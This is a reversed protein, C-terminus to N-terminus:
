IEKRLAATLAKTNVAGSANLTEFARKRFPRKQAESLNFYQPRKVSRLARRQNEPMARWLRRREERFRARGQDSQSLYIEATLAEIKRSQSLRLSQSFFDAALRDVVAKEDSALVHWSLNPTSTPRLPEGAGARLSSFLTLGFIAGFLFPRRL